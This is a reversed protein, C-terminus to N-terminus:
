HFTLSERAMRMDTVPSIQPCPQDASLDQLPQAHRRAARPGKRQRNRRLNKRKMVYARIDYETANTNLPIEPRELVLLRQAKNRFLRRVLSDLTAYGTRARKFIRDFRSRLIEAQDINPALKYEKLGGYLWWIMRKAIDIANRQKDNAPVLKHVLREAHVWCLAHL